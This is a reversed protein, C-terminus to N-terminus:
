SSNKTIIETVKILSASLLDCQKQLADIKETLLQIIYSQGNRVNNGVYAFSNGFADARADILETEYNGSASSLAGTIADQRAKLTDLLQSLETGNVKLSKINQTHNDISM